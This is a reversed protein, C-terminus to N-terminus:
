GANVVGGRLGHFHALAEDDRDHVRHVNHGDGHLHLTALLDLGGEPGELGEADLGGGVGAYDFVAAVDPDPVGVVLAMEGHLHAGAEEPAGDGEAEGAVFALLCGSTGNPIEPALLPM